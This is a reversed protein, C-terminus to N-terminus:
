LYRSSISVPVDSVPEKGKETAGKKPKSSKEKQKTKVSSQLLFIRILMYFHVKAVEKPENELKTEVQQPKNVEVALVDNSPPQLEHQV